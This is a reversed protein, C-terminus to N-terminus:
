KGSLAPPCVVLCKGSSAALTTLLRKRSRGATGQPIYFEQTSHDLIRDSARLMKALFSLHNINEFPAAVALVQATILSGPQLLGMGSMM